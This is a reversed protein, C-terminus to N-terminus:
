LFYLDPNQDDSFDLTNYIESLRAHLKEDADKLFDEYTKGKLFIEKIDM